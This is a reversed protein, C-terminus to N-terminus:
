GQITLLPQIHVRAKNKNIEIFFFFAFRGVSDFDWGDNSATSVISLLLFWLISIFFPNKVSRSPHILSAALIYVFWPIEVTILRFIVINRTSEGKNTATTALLLLFVKRGLDVCYLKFSHRHYRLAPLFSSSFLLEELRSRHVWEGRFSIM